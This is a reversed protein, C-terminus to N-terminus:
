KGHRESYGAGNANLQEIMKDRYSCAMSFAPLLGYKNVSFVKSQLSGGLDNWFARAYTLGKAKWFTVGTKGSTNRDLKRQNRRNKEFPIVRLNDHDNNREDGDKHDVVMGDPIEGHLMEWIIRHCRYVTKGIKVQYRKQGSLSGAVRGVRAKTLAGRSNYINVNWRLGSPVSPDLVFYEEWKLM